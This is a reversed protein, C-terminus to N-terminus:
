GWITVNFGFYARSELLVGQYSAHDLKM